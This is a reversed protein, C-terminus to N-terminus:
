RIWGGQVAQQYLEKLRTMETDTVNNKQQQAYLEVSKEYYATFQSYDRIEMNTESQIDAELFALRKYVNYDEGYEELMTTLCEKSKVFNGQQQNLIAMNEYTTYNGWGNNQIKELTEIAKTIYIDDGSFSIMDMYAQALQELIALTQNSPLEIVAQELLDIKESCSEMDKGSADITKCEMVYARMKLYDDDTQGICEAFKEKATRYDQEEYAIEGYVYSLGADGLGQEGADQLVQRAKDTDGRRALAITYDRYYDENESYEGIALEYYAIANKYNELETYGNALLYYFDSLREGSDVIAENSLVTDQIFQINDEYQQQSNLAVAKQYYAEAEDPLLQISDKYYTEFEEYEENEICAELQRVYSEYTELKEQEMREKGNVVVASLVMVIVIVLGYAFRQGMVLRRYRRDKRWMHKMDYLLKGASQYRKNPDAELCKMILQAFVDSIKIKFNQIPEMRKPDSAPRVGTLMQYMTAGFSYIDARADITEWLERNSIHRNHEAVAIQEPSAYGKTYGSVAAGYGHILASINFDILCINGDPMRMINGPKIDGHIIAPNQSHLYDLTMCIQQGWTLVQQQSFRVGDDLYKQFSQGPIFDMVTYVEGKYELFDLVQPLYPHRLNKLIDAEARNTTIDQIKSHIKKLVVEKQLRQHLAKYVTGGSGEGIKGVIRYTGSITDAM